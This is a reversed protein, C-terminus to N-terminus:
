DLTLRKLKRVKKFLNSSYVFDIVDQNDTQFNRRKNRALSKIRKKSINEGIEMVSNM